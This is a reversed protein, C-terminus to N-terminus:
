TMRTLATRTARYIFPGPADIVAGRDGAVPVPCGDLFARAPVVGTEDACFAIGWEM